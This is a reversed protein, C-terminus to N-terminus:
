SFILEAFIIEEVQAKCCNMLGVWRMPDRAKLDETAGAEKAMGPMMSDLLDNAADETELLHAYLKGSLTLRNFLGPRHEKLYRLRMLGYKGLSRNPQPELALNPSITIELKTYTLEIEM